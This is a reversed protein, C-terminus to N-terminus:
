GFIISYVISKTKNILEENTYQTNTVTIGTGGGGPAWTSSIQVGNVNSYITKNYINLNGSLRPSPDDALATIFSNTSTTTAINATTYVGNVVESVQWAKVTENWSIASNAQGTGRNVIISAGFPNPSTVGANLTIVHDTIETNNSSYSQTNGSIWLNGEIYVNGSNLIIKDTAGISKIIYDGNIRKYTSM